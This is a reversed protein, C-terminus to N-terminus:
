ANIAREAAVFARPDTSPNGFFSYQNDTDRYTWLNYNDNFDQVRVSYANGSIYGTWDDVLSMFDENKPNGVAVVAYDNGHTDKGEFRTYPIGKYRQSDTNGSMIQKLWKSYRKDSDDLILAGNPVPFFGQVEQPTQSEDPEFIVRVKGLTLTHTNDQHTIIDM